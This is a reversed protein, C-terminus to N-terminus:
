KKKILLFVGVGALVLLGLGGGIWGWPLRKKQQVYYQTQPTVYLYPARSITKLLENQKYASYGGFLTAILDSWSSTGAAVPVTGPRPTTLVNVPNPSAAIQKVEDPIEIVVAKGGPQFADEYLSPTDLTSPDIYSPSKTITPLKAPSPPKPAEPIFESPYSLVLPSKLSGNKSSDFFGGTSPFFQGKLTRSQEFLTKASREGVEVSVAGSLVQNYLNIFGSLLSNLKVVAEPNSVSLAGTNYGNVYKNIDNAEESIERLFLNKEM